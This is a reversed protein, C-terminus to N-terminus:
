EWDHGRFFIGRLVDLLAFRLFAQFDSGSTQASILGRRPKSASPKTSIAMLRTQPRTSGADVFYKTSLTM